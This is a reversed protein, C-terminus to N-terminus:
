EALDGELARKQPETLTAECEAGPFDVGIAVPAHAGFRFALYQVSSLREDGVQRADYTPRVLSGDPMRAYIAPILGRWARLKEDRESPDDIGILLTCGLTGREHLLENYTDIEHQIDAERVIREVRMMEQIQYRVTDRNEFLFTFADGVLIRRAEKERLVAPRTAERADTYSQWDLLEERDIKKM